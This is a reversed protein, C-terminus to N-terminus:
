FTENEEQKGADAEVEVEQQQQIQAVVPQDAPRVKPSRSRAGQRKVKVWKGRKQPGKAPPNAANAPAVPGRGQVPVPLPGMDVAEMDLHVDGGQTTALARLNAVRAREIGGRPPPVIVVNDEGGANGEVLTRYYNLLQQQHARKKEQYDLDLQHQINEADRQNEVARDKFFDARNGLVLSVITLGAVAFGVWDPMVTIVQKFVLGSTVLGAIAVGSDFVYWAGNFGRSCCRDRKIQRILDQADEENLAEFDSKIQQLLENRRELWEEREAPTMEMFDSTPITVIPFSTGLYVTTAVAQAQTSPTCIFIIALLSSLIRM